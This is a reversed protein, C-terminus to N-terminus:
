YSQAQFFLFLYIFILLYIFAVYKQFNIFQM